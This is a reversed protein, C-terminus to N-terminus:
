VHSSKQSNHARLSPKLRARSRYQPKHMVASYKKYMETTFPARLTNSQLSFSSPTLINSASGDM